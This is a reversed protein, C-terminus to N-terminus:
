RGFPTPSGGFAVNLYSYRVDFLHRAEINLQPLFGRGVAEFQGWSTQREMAQSRQYYPSHELAEKRAQSLTLAGVKKSAAHTQAAPLGLSIISILTVIKKSVKM